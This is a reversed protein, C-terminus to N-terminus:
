GLQSFSLQISTFINELHNFAVTLIDLESEQKEPNRRVQEIRESLTQLSSKVQGEINQLALQSLMRNHSALDLRVDGIYITFVTDATSATIPEIGCPISPPSTRHNMSLLRQGAHTLIILAYSLLNTTLLLCDTRVRCRECQMTNKTLTLARDLLSVLVVLSVSEQQGCLTHQIDRMVTLTGLACSIHPQDQSHRQTSVPSQNSGGNRIETADGLTVKPLPTMLDIPPLTDYMSATSNLDSLHTTAEEIPFSGAANGLWDEASTLAPLLSPLSPCNSGNTTLAESDASASGATM